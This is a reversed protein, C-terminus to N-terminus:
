LFVGESDESGGASASTIRRRRSSLFMDVMRKSGMHEVDVVQAGGDVGWCDHGLIGSGTIGYIDEERGPSTRWEAGPTRPRSISRVSAPRPRERASAPTNAASKNKKVLKSTRTSGVANMSRVSRLTMNSPDRNHPTLHKGSMTSTKAASLPSKGRGPVVVNNSHPSKPEIKPVLRLTSRGPIPPPPPIPPINENNLMTNENNLMANEVLSVTSRKKLIPKLVPISQTNLHPINQQIVGLPQKNAMSDLSSNRVSGVPRRVLQSAGSVHRSSATTNQMKELAEEATNVKQMEELMEEADKITKDVEMQSSPNIQAEERVHRGRFSNSLSPMAYNVYSVAPGMNDKGRELKSVESSMWMKWEQSGASATNRHGETKPAASKYVASNLITINGSKPTYVRVQQTPMAQPPITFIADPLPSRMGTTRSYISESYAVASGNDSRADYAMSNSLMRPPLHKPSGDGTVHQGEPAEHQQSNRLAMARRFPSPTRGITFAETGGFFASRSDRVELAPKNTMISQRVTTSFDEPIRHFSDKTTSSNFSQNRQNISFEQVQHQEGQAPSFVDDESSAPADRLPEAQIWHHREDKNGEVHRITAPTISNALSEVSGMRFAEVNTRTDELRKMLASYVRASDVAGQDQPHSAHGRSQKQAAAYAQARPRHFLNKSTHTGNENIVSLRQLEREREREREMAQHGQTQSNITPVVSSQNWSTVRSKESGAISGTQSRLTQNSTAHLSGTRTAINLLTAEGPYVIETVDHVFSLDPNPGRNHSAVVQQAPIEVDKHRTFVKKFRNRMGRSLKRAKDKLGLEKISKLSPVRKLVPAPASKSSSSRVSKRFERENEQRQTKSRFLFSPQERLRQQTSEYFFKDRAQQVAAENRKRDRGGRLFSMSKPARLRFSPSARPTLAESVNVSRGPSEMTTYISATKIPGYSMSKSKRIHRYSSPQSAIDDENTYYENYATSAAMYSSGM